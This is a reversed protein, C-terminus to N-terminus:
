KQNISSNRCTRVSKGIWAGLVGDSLCGTGYQYKPGEKKLLAIAEESYEGGFSKAKAPDPAQLGEVKIEQIFFEGNYLESEMYDKGKKCLSGLYPKVDKEFFNEWKQHYGTLAGLYFSTCM